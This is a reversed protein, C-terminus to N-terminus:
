KNTFDVVLWNPSPAGKVPSTQPAQQGAEFPVSCSTHINEEV